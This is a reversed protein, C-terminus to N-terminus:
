YNQQENTGNHWISDSENEAFLERTCFGSNEDPPLTEITDYLIDWDDNDIYLDNSAMRIAIAKAQELTEAEISFRQRYWITKKHDQTFDFTEM